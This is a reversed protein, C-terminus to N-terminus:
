PRQPRRERYGTTGVMPHLRPPGCAPGACRWVPSSEWLGRGNIAVGDPQSADGLGATHHLLQWVTIKAAAAQDPYEPMVEALTRDWRLKGAEVLQAIAVATFTKNMSGIHFKTQRDAKVGFTRDAFGRCAYFVITAGDSISLCGSFDTTRALQDLAAGALQAIEAQSAATEPWAAYLTPDDVPVLDAMALKGPQKHDPLLVLAARQGTRRGKITVVIMGPPGQTRADVFDVGGSDRVAVALQKAVAARVDADISPALITPAWQQIGEPTDANIHAIVQGAIAGAVTDPLTTSIPSASAPSSAVAAAFALIPVLISSLFPTPWISLKM